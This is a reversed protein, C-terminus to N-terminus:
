PRADAVPDHSAVQELDRSPVAERPDSDWRQATGQPNAIIMRWGRGAQAAIVNTATGTVVVPAGDPMTLRLVYDVIILATDGHRFALRLTNTIDAKAAILAEMEARVAASGSRTEGSQVRLVAAEDYLALLRDLDGANLAADFAHPFNEPEMVQISM